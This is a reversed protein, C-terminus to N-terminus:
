QVRFFQCIFICEVFNAAQNAKTLCIFISQIKQLTMAKPCHFETRGHHSFYVKLTEQACTYAAMWSVILIRVRWKIHCFEPSVLALSWVIGGCIHQGCVSIFVHKTCRQIVACIPTIVPICHEGLEKLVDQTEIWSLVFMVFRSFTLM